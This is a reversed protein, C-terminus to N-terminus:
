SAIQTDALTPFQSSGQIKALFDQVYDKQPIPPIDSKAIEQRLTKVPGNVTAPDIEGPGYEKSGVTVEVPRQVVYTFVMFLLFLGGLGLAFWQVNQEFFNVQKQM